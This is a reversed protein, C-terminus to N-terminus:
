KLLTNQGDVLVVFRADFLALLMAPTGLHLARGTYNYETVLSQLHADAQESIALLVTPEPTSDPKRRYPVM